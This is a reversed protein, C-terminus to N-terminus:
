HTNTPSTSSSLEFGGLLRASTLEQVAEGIVPADDEATSEALSEIAVELTAGVNLQSALAAAFAGVPVLAVDNASRSIVVHQSGSDLNVSTDSGPQNSRWISLVPFRSVILRASNSLSFRLAPYDTPDVETLATLDLPTTEEELQVEEMAWELAAVDPLYAFETEAYLEFLSRPFAAGYNQLDGSVSPNDRMYKRAIGRFCDDGVLREIVPYSAALAKRYTERANNQYVQISVSPPITGDVLDDVILEGEGHLFARYCREQLDRLSNM